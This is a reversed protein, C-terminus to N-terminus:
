TSWFRLRKRSAGRWAKRWSARADARAALDLGAFEGAVFAPDRPDVCARLRQREVIADHLTGLIDQLRILRKLLKSARGGSM